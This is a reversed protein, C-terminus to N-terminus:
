TPLGGGEEGEGEEEEEEEEEEEASLSGPFLFFVSQAQRGM